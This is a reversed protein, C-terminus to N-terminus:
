SREHKMSNIMGPLKGVLVGSDSALVFATEAQNLTMTKPEFPLYDSRIFGWKTM